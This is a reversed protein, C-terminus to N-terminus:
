RSLGGQRTVKSDVLTTVGVRVIAPKTILVQKIPSDGLRALWDSVTYKRRPSVWPICKQGLELGTGHANGRTNGLVLTFTCLLILSLCVGM